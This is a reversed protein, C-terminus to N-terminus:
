KKKAKKIMRNVPAEIDTTVPEEIAPNPVNEIAEIKNRAEAVGMAILKQAKDAPFGAVEGKQYPSYGKVFKVLM